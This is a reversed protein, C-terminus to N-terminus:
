YRALSADYILVLAVDPSVPQKGRLRFYFDGSRRSLEEVPYTLSLLSVLTLLLLNLLLWDRLRRPTRGLQLQVRARM